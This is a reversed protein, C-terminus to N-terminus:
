PRQVDTVPAEELALGGTSSGSGRRAPMQSPESGRRMSSTPDGGHVRRWAEMGNSESENQVILNAADTTFSVLYACLKGVFDAIGEIRDRSPRGVLSTTGPYLAAEKRM